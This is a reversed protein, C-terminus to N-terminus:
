KKLTPCDLFVVTKPSSLGSSSFLLGTVIQCGVHHSM